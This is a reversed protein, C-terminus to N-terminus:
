AVTFDRGCWANWWNGNEKIEENLILSFSWCQHFKHHPLSKIWKTIPVQLSFTSLADVYLRQRMMLEKPKRQKKLSFTFFVVLRTHVYSAAPFNSNKSEVNQLQMWKCCKRLKIHQVHNTCTKQINKCSKQIKMKTKEPWTKHYLKRNNVIKQLAKKPNKHLQM